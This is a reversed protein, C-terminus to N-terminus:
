LCWVMTSLRQCYGDLETAGPKEAAVGYPAPANNPSLTLPGSAYHGDLGTLGISQGATRVNAGELPTTATVARHVTVDNPDPIGAYVTGAITGFEQRVLQLDVTTVQGCIASGPWERGLVHERRSCATPDSLVQVGMM